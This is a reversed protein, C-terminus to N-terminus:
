EGKLEILGFMCLDTLAVNVEDVSVRLTQALLRSDFPSQPHTQKQLVITVGLWRLRTSIQRISKWTMARKGCLLQSLTSHELNVSRAFARLSYRPNVQRRRAFESELISRLRIAASARYRHRLSRV